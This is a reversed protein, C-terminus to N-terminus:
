WVLHIWVALWAAMGFTARVGAAEPLGEGLGARISVHEVPKGTWSPQCQPYEHVFQNTNNLSNAVEDCTMTVYYGGRADILIMSIPIIVRMTVISMQYSWARVMWIRHEEIKRDRIAKWGAIISYLVMTGLAFTATQTGLDGGFSVRGIAIGCISSIMTLVNIIRGAYRHWSTYKTRLRPIFQIISLMSAPLVCALHILLLAGNPSVKFTFYEEPILKAKLGGPFLFRINTIFMIVLVTGYLLWWTTVSRSKFRLLGQLSGFRRASTLSLSNSTM